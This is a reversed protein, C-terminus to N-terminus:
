HVLIPEGEYAVFLCQAGPVDISYSEILGGDKLDIIRRNNNNVGQLLDGIKFEENMLWRNKNACKIPHNLTTIINGTDHIIQRARQTHKSKRKLINLKRSGYPTKAKWTKKWERVDQLANDKDLIKTAKPFCFLFSEAGFIDGIRTTAPDWKVDKVWYADSPLDYTSVLPQAQFYAYKEQFPFYQAVFDGTVRIAQELQAETLEVLVTPHGLTSLIEFKVPDSEYRAISPLQEPGIIAM